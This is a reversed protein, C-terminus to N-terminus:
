IARRLGTKRRLNILDTDEVEWFSKVIFPILEEELLTMNAVLNQRVFTRGLDTLKILGSTYCKDDIISKALLATLAQRQVSEMKHFLIPAAPYSLFTKDPKPVRLSLFLKRMEQSMSVKHLLIPNAIFFDAIYARELGIAAESSSYLLLGFRRISDYIDLQPYWVRISM